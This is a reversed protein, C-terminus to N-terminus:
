NKYGSPKLKTIILNKQILENESLISVLIDEIKLIGNDYYCPCNYSCFYKCSHYNENISIHKVKKLNKYYKLIEMCLYCFYTHCNSCKKHHIKIGIENKIKFNCNPCYKFEDM